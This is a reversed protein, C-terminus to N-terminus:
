KNLNFFITSFKQKFCNIQLLQESFRKNWKSKYSTPYVIDLQNTIQVLPKKYKYQDMNQEEKINWIKNLKYVKKTPKDFFSSKFM